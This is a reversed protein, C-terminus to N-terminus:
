WVFSQVKARARTGPSKESSPSDHPLFLLSCQIERLLLQPYQHATIEGPHAASLGGFGYISDRRRGAAHAVAWSIASAAPFVGFPPSSTFDVTLSKRTRRESWNDFCVMRTKNHSSSARTRPPRWALSTSVSSGNVQACGGVVLM